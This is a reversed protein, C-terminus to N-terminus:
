CFIPITYLCLYLCLFTYILFVDCKKFLHAFDNVGQLDVVYQSIISDVYFGPTYELTNKKIKVTGLYATYM